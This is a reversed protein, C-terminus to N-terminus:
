NDPRPDRPTLRLWIEAILLYPLYFAWNQIRDFLGTFDPTSYPACLLSADPCQVAYFIGYHVRYIWSALCLIILRVAWRRHRVYDGAMALRPAQIAAVVMLIGYLAFGASMERGGITGNIAIYILGGIGTLAAFPALIRGTIRHFAPWRRRVLGAWQVVALATIVGGFVMHSFIAANSFVSGALRGQADIDGSLGGIGRTVAHATFWWVSALLLALATLAIGDRIAFRTM